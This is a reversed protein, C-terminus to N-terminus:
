LLRCILITNNNNILAYVIVKPLTATSIVKNIQEFGHLYTTFYIAFASLLVDHMVYIRTCPFYFIFVRDCFSRHQAVKWSYTGKKKLTLSLNLFLQFLPHLYHLCTSIPSIEERFGSCVMYFPLSKPFSEM